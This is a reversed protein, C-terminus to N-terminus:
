MGETEAGCNPCSKSGLPVPKQCEPCYFITAGCPKCFPSSAKMVEEDCFPCCEKKNEENM